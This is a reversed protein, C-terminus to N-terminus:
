GSGIPGPLFGEDLVRELGWPCGTPLRDAALRTDRVAARRGLRYADELIEPLLPRLSPSDRLLLEAQDRQEGISALWSRGRRTPQAAWKLLHALLVSLRNTLERKEARGMDEIEEALYLLDLESLRAARLKRGQDMAWAHFDADHSAGDVAPRPTATDDM